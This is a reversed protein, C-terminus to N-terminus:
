GTSGRGEFADLLDDPLPEFFSDPITMGRDIGVPRPQRLPTRIPRLEAIPVNRRCILVTEGEGVKALYHSLRAKAEAVNIRNM